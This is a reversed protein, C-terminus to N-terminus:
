LRVDIRAETVISEPRTGMAQTRELNIYVADVCLNTRRQFESVIESAVNRLRAEFATRERQMEELTM